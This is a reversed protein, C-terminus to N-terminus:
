IFSYTGDGALIIKKKLIKVIDEYNIPKKVVEIKPDINNEVLKEEIVTNGTLILTRELPYLGSNLLKRIVAFGDEKSGKALEIDVFVLAYDGIHEYDVEQSTRKFVFTMKDNYDSLAALEFAGRITEVMDEIVLIKVATMIAM